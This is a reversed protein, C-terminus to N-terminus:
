IRARIPYGMRTHDGMEDVSLEIIGNQMQRSLDAVRIQLENLTENARYKDMAFRYGMIGGVSLVGTVALVGLMEVMSRGIENFKVKMKKERECNYLQM